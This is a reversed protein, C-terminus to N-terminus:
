EELNRLSRGFISFEPYEVLNASIRRPLTKWIIENMTSLPRPQYRPLPSTYQAYLDFDFMPESPISNRVRVKDFLSDEVVSTHQDNDM